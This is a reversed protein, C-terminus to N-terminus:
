LLTIRSKYIKNPIIEEEETKPFLKLLIPIQEKKFLRQYYEALFVDPEQFKKSPLCKIVPEIHNTSIPRNLFLHSIFVNESLCFNLPYIEVMGTRYSITFSPLYPTLYFVWFMFANSTGM